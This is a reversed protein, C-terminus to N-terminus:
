LKQVRLDQLENPDKYEEQQEIIQDGNDSNEDDMLDDM